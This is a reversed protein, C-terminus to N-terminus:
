AAVWKMIIKKKQVLSERGSMPVSPFEQVGEPSWLYGTHDYREFAAKVDDILDLIGKQTGKGILIHEPDHIAVYGYIEVTFTKRSAGSIYENGVTGDKFGVCPFPTTEPLLDEGALLHVAKEGGLYTLQAITRTQLATLLAKM